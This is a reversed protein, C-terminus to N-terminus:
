KAIGYTKNVDQVFIIGNGPKDIELSERISSTIADVSARESLIIVIEKEPEIEIAFVKRREHVGSGRANVITGGKSGGRVAADIVDEGRGRDVIVTIIQYMIEEAGREENGKGCAINKTGSIGCISTTFVIGRNAKHFEFIRNLEGIAEYATKRDAAMYVVERRIDYFGIGSNKTGLGLAVTGGSIGCRKAAKLIKSGLGYNVIACILEVDIGESKSSM